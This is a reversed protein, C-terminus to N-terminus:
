MSLTRRLTTNNTTITNTNYINSNYRYIGDKIKQPIQTSSFMKMVNITIKSDVIDDYM